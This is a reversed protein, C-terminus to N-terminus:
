PQVAGELAVLYRELWARPAGDLVPGGPGLPLGVQQALTLTEEPGVQAQAAEQARQIAACLAEDGLRGLDLRQKVAAVLERLRLTPATRPSSLGMSKALEGVLDGHQKRLQTVEALVAEREADAKGGLGAGERREERPNSAEGSGPASASTSPPAPSSTGDAQPDRSGQSSARPSPLPHAPTSPTSGLGEASSHNAGFDEGSSAAVSPLSASAAAEPPAVPQPLAPFPVAEETEPRGGPTAQLPARSRERSPPSPPLSPEPDEYSATVPQARSAAVDEWEDDTHLGFMIQPAHLRLLLVASRYSLMQEGLAAYKQNRTWGEARAMAMSVRKSVRRGTKAVTAFCTVALSEGSGESTWDLPESFIGSSNARAILFSANWGPKNGVFHVNQMITFVDEGMKQALMQAMLLDAPKGQFAKPILQSQSLVQALELAHKFASPSSLIDGRGEPLEPEQQAVTLATTSRPNM